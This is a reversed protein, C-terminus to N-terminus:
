DAMGYLSLRAPECAAICVLMFNTTWVLESPACCLAGCWAHSVYRLLTSRPAALGCCPAAICASFGGPEVVALTLYNRDYVRMTLRSAPDLRM